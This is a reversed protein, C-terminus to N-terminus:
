LDPTVAKEHHHFTLYVLGGVLGWILNAAFLLLSFAIAPEQGIHTVPDVTIVGYVSFMLVAGFERMGHGSISVPLSMLVYVVALIVMMQFIGVELGLSKAICWGMAFSSFHVLICYGISQFTLLPARGHHRFGEVLSEFVDHKPLKKWLAKIQAPFKQFPILAMILVGLLVAGLFGSLSWMITRLEGFQQFYKVQWPFTSVALVLLVCVGIFRDMLISLAARAKRNPAYKLIYFIKVVDGGVSGPLFTNFFQGILAMKAVPVFPLNVSQVKLLTQWRLSVFLMVLGFGGFATMLWGWHIGAFQKGLENWDLTYAFFLLIALTIAGRLVTGCSWKSKKEKM